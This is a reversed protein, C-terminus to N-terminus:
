EIDQYGVLLVMCGQKPKGDKSVPVEYEIYYNGTKKPEFVWFLNDIGSNSDYLKQRTKMTKRKDYINVRVEETFDGSSCFILRYKQDAYATFEVDIVKPTNDIIIDNEASGSFKFPPLNKKCAKVIPKCNQAHASNFCLAAIAAISILYKLM